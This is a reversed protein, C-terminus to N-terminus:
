RNLQRMLQQAGPHVPNLRLTRQAAAGAGTRDGTRVLVTALAYPYDAVTPALTEAERLADAGEMARGAQALLLGLNYWARDLRRDLQVAYALGARLATPAGQPLLGAARYLKAAAEAPRGLSALVM